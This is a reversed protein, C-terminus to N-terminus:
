PFQRSQHVITLVDIDGDAAEVYVITYPLGTVGFERTGELRGKRGMRPFQAFLLATQRIRSAVGIAARPNDAAIWDKIARLDDRAQPTFRLKSALIAGSTTPM